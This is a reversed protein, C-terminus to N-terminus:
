MPWRIPQTGEKHDCLGVYPNHARKTAVSALTNATHGRQPMDTYRSVLGRSVCLQPIDTYRSVLGRSVCM